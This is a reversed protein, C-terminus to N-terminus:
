VAGSGRGGVGRGVRWGVTGGRRVKAGAVRRGVITGMVFAGLVSGVPTGTVAFGVRAGVMRGVTNEGTMMNIIKGHYNETINGLYNNGGFLRLLGIFM